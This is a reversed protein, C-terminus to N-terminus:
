LGRRIPAAFGQPDLKPLEGWLQGEWHGFNQEMLRADRLFDDAPLGMAHRIIQMTETTRALPSAVYCFSKARAGLVHGLARGNRLAQARGNDNLPIDTQGQYRQAVNWDTEGHRVFYLTVGPRLTSGEVRTMTEGMM